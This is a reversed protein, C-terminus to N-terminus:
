FNNVQKENKDGQISDCNDNIKETLEHNSELASDEKGELDEEARLILACWEDKHIHSDDLEEPRVGLGRAM